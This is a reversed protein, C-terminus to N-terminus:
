IKGFLVINRLKKADKIAAGDKRVVFKIHAGTMTGSGRLYGVQKGFTEGRKIKKGILAKRDSDKIPDLHMYEVREGTPTKVVIYWGAHAIDKGTKDQFFAQIPEESGQLRIDIIEGDTLSVVEGTKTKMDFGGSHKGNKRVKAGETIIIDSQAIKIQANDNFGHQDSIDSPAYIAAGFSNDLVVEKYGNKPAVGTKVKPVHDWATTNIEYHAKDTTTGLEVMDDRLQVIGLGEVASKDVKTYLLPMSVQTNLHNNIKNM